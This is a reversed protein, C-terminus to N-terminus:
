QHNVWYQNKTPFSPLCQHLWSPNMTVITLETLRQIWPEHINIHWDGLEHHYDNPSESIVMLEHIQWQNVGIPLGIIFFLVTSIMYKFRNCNTNWYNRHNTYCNNESNIILSSNMCAIITAPQHVYMLWHNIWSSPKMIQWNQKTHNLWRYYYHSM